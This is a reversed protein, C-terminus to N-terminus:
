KRSFIGKIKSIAGAAPSSGESIGKRRFLSTIGVLKGKIGKASNAGVASNGTKPKRKFMTKINFKEHPPNPKKLDFGVLEGGANLRLVFVNRVPEPHLFAELRDRGSLETDLSRRRHLLGKKVSLKRRIKISDDLPIGTVRESPVEGFGHITSTDPVAEFEVFDDQQIRQELEEIEQILQLIEDHSKVSTIEDSLDAIPIGRHV